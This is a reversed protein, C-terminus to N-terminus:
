DLVSSEGAQVAARDPLGDVGCSEAIRAPVWAETLFNQGLSKSFRFGHRGLVARITDINCLDM